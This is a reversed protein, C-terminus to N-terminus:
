IEVVEDTVIKDLLHKLVFNVGLVEKVIKAPTKRVYTQPNSINDITSVYFIDRESSGYIKIQDVEFAKIEKDSHNYYYLTDGIKYRVKYKM